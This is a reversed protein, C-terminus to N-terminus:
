LGAQSVVGYPLRNAETVADGFSRFPTILAVPGFPEENNMIRADKPVETLVTPELFSAKYGIRHGGTRVRAGRKVADGILAKMAAVRRPNALPGMQTGSELGDGVKTARIAQTFKEVFAGYAQEQVLFRIPSSCALEIARGAAAATWTGNILLSVNPYM